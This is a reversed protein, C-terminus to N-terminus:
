KSHTLYKHLDNLMNIVSLICNWWLLAVVIIIIMSIWIVFPALIVCTLSVLIKDLINDLINNININIIKNKIKTIINPKAVINTQQYCISTKYYSLKNTACLLRLLQKNSSTSLRRM